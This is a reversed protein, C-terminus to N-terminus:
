LYFSVSRPRNKGLLAKQLNKNSTAQLQRNLEMTEHLRHTALRETEELKKALRDKESNIQNISRELEDKENHIKRLNTRMLSTDKEKEALATKTKELEQTIKDRTEKLKDIIIKQSKVVLEHTDENPKANKDNDAIQQRLTENLGTCEDILTRQLIITEQM